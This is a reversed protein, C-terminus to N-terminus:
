ARAPTEDCPSPLGALRWANMGGALDTVRAYGAGRLLSAAISSRYGSQCHVLLPRDRPVDSLRAALRDLPLNVAGPVSDRICM